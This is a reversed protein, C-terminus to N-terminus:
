RWYVSQGGDAILFSGTVFSGADSVLFLAAGIMEDAEAMRGLPVMDVAISMSGSAAAASNFPTKTPGPGLANVRIGYQAWDVAMVRTMQVVAAKSSCYAVRLPSVVEALQSAMNLISGGGQQRMIRAAAQSCLLTGTCNVRFVYEWDELTHELVPKHVRVGANNVLVDVRGYRDMVQDFVRQVDTPNAVDMELALGPHGLSALEREIPDLLEPLREGVVVTAGANAFGLALSRGIGQGGGTVVAVRGDLRFTPFSM